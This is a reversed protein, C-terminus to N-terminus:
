AGFRSALANLGAEYIGAVVDSADEGRGTFTSSWSVVARGAAESVCLVSRYDSVPLPSEVIEYGYSAADCGLSKELIEGGGELSLRRHEVGDIVERASGAVAPHWDPMAQFGGIVSWVADAPAGVVVARTVQAM